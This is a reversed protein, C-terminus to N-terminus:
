RGLSRNLLQKGATKMLIYYLIGSVIQTSLPTILIYTSKFTLSYAVGIGWVVLAVPNWGNLYWYQGNVKVLEDVNLKNTGRGRLFFYDAIIIGNAPGLTSALVNVFTKIGSVSYIGMVATIIGIGVVFATAIARPIGRPIWKNGTTLTSLALGGWYPNLCNTSWASFVVILLGTFGLGLKDVITPPDPSGIIVTGLMGIVFMITGVFWTATMFSSFATTRTKAYRSSDAAAILM